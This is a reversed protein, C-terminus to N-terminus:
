VLALRVLGGVVCAWLLSAFTGIIFRERAESAALEPFRGIAKVAVIVALAEPFGAVIAIVASVRELYGITRGGRLLVTREADGAANEELVVIGGDATEDARDHTAIELVRRVFPNGGLTALVTGLLALILGMIAPVQVPSVIVVMLALVVLGTAVALPATAPRRLSIVVLVLAACMTLFLFISLVATALELPIGLAM